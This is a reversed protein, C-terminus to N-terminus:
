TRKATLYSVVLRSAGSFEVAFRTINGLREWRPAYLGGCPAEWVSLVMRPGHFILTSLSLLVLLVPLAILVTLVLLALLALLLM